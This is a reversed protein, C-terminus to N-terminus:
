DEQLDDVSDVIDNPGTETLVDTQGASKDLAFGPYRPKEGKNGQNAPMGNSVLLTTRFSKNDGQWSCSHNVAEIHYVIGEVLVNDGEAIPSQIGLTEITGNLTLHSGSTRDVVAEMWKRVAGHKTEQDVAYTENLTCNVTAMLPRIGHQAIDVSDFIPPNRVMQNAVTSDGTTSIAGYIHILNKRTANSCGVAVRKTLQRPLKWRPLDMFRTLPFLPDEPLSDTNFPIQRIVIQPLILGTAGLRLVTYPENIVPNVYEKIMTWLSKNIFSSNVPLFTGKLLHKTRFKRGSSSGLDIEPYLGNGDYTQVGILTECLSRYSVTNTKPEVGLIKAVGAPVVYAYSADSNVQPTPTVNEQDPLIKPDITAVQAKEGIKTTDSVGKGLVGEILMELLTSVNDKLPTGIQTMDKQVLLSFDLGLSSMFQKIDDSVGSLTALRLDYYYETDLEEFSIAQLKYTLQDRGNDQFTRDSHVSHVRGMFKLGSDFTNAPKLKKVQQISNRLDEENNCCWAFIWDGPSIIDKDIYNTGSYLLTASLNKTQSAKSNSIQLSYCDKVIILPKENRLIGAQKISDISKKTARSYSILNGLRFVALGWAPNSSSFHEDNVVGNDGYEQLLDYEFAM